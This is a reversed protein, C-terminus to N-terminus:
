DFLNKENEKLNKESGSDQHPELVLTRFLQTMLITKTKLKDITMGILTQFHTMTETEKALEEVELRL